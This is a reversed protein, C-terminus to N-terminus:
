YRRHHIDGCIRDSTVPLLTARDGVIGITKLLDTPGTGHQDVAAGSHSAGGQDVLQLLWDPKLREGLEGDHAVKCHVSVNEELVEFAYFGPYWHVASVIEAGTRAHKRLLLLLGIRKRATNGTAAAHFRTRLEVVLCIKNAGRSNGLDPEEVVVWGALSELFVTQM